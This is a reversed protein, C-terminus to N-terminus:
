PVKTFPVAIANGPALRTGWGFSGYSADYIFREGFATVEGYMVHGETFVAYVGQGAQGWNVSEGRTLGTHREILGVAERWGSVNDSNVLTRLNAIGDDRGSLNYALHEATCAICDRGGGIHVAGRSVVTGLSSLGTYAELPSWIVGSQFAGWAIDNPSAGPDAFFGSIAGDFAGGFGGYIAGMFAGPLVGAPGVTVLGYIAGTAAGGLAGGLAGGSAGTWANDWSSADLGLPDIKSLPNGAAYAYWNMGGGFGIPDANLFRGIRPNYYRARMYHLGNPDTMVGLTGVFLFPTDNTGTRQYIAGYPTYGVRDTIVGSANSLAVTNGVQDYHYYALTGTSVAEDYLLMGSAYVSFVKDGSPRERVLVRPLSGGHPDIVYRTTQGGSILSVRNGEPDYTYSVGVAGTLQNRANYTFTTLVGGPSPGSTMNGDADHIVAQGTWTLLRNDDDYTMAAMTENAAVTPMPLEFRSTVRGGLDYELKFFSHLEGNPKREEVKELQGAVDHFLNRSSGNPRDLRSLRGDARYTMTTTRGSWDTVTKLRNHNDYDYTVTRAPSGPYTVSKLSGNAYYRYSVVNGSADTYSKVRGYPDYTRVLTASGETVTEPQGITNYTYAITGVADTVTQVRDAVDYALTSTQGSPEQTGSLLNRDNYSRTATKGTPTILDKPLGNAHYTFQFKKGRRNTLSLREGWADSVSTITNDRGDTSVTPSGRGDYLQGTSSTITADLKRATGAPQGDPNFTSDLYRGLADTVREVRAADDLTYDTRQGALPGDVFDIWDRNDYTNTEVTIIDGAVLGPNTLNGNFLGTQVSTIKGSASVTTRKARGIPDVQLMPYGSDDYFVRSVATTYDPSDGPGTHTLLQGRANYTYVSAFGRANTRSTLNGRFDYVFSTQEVGGGRKPTDVREALGKADYYFTSVRDGAASKITVTSRKGAAPDSATKYVFETRVSRPDVTANPRATNNGVAYEFTTTRDVTDGDPVAPNPYAPDIQETKWLRDLSDYYNKTKAGLPDVVETLNFRADFKFTTTNGRPSTTSTAQDQGDYAIRSRNGEGDIKGVPRNRSDYLYVTRQGLPTAETNRFGSWHLTFTRATLGQNRQEIVRGDSDYTNHVITRTQPDKTETIRRDVSTYGWTKGEVDTCGTLNGQGDTALYTVTRAPISNDTVSSLRSGTFAFSLTRGYADTATSLRGGSYALTLQKGDIDTVKTGRGGEAAAFRYTTGLRESLLYDGTVAEKSLSLTSKAPPQYAGDPQKIFQLSNEGLTFSVANNEMQDVAWGSILTSVAWDKATSANAFIDACAYAAVITTAADFVTTEGLMAEPASRVVARLDYNHTWGWGLGVPDSDRRHSNYNRRLSLGRPEGEGLALDTAHLTFRGSGMDVPDVGYNTFSNYSPGPGNLGFVSLDSLDYNPASTATSYSSVYENTSSYGGALGGSIVVGISNDSTIVYGTGSWQNLPNSSNEPLFFSAGNNIANQMGDLFATTYGGTSLRPRVSAFTSSNALFLENAASNSSRNALQLVKITSIAGPSAQQQELVGHEFASAFFAATKFVLRMPDLRGDRAFYLSHNFGLDVYYSAPSGDPKQEQAARGFGHSQLANVGWIDGAVSRQLQSHHLWTLGLVNLTETVVQRRLNVDSISDLLVNGATDYLLGSLARAQRLYGDLIRQRFRVHQGNPSFSYVLAYATKDGKRYELTEVEPRTGAYGNPNSATANPYVLSTRLQVTAGPVTTTTLVEDDLHVTATNGSFTLALRKGALDSFFRTVITGGSTPNFQLLLKARVADDITATTTTSGSVPFLAATPLSTLSPTEDAVITRRGLLEDVSLHPTASTKVSGIFQNIRAILHTGMASENIGSVSYSDPTTGGAATLLASRSYGMATPLDFPTSANTPKYSPDLIYTSGAVTVSVWVRPIALNRSTTAGFTSSPWGRNGTFLHAALMQKKETDTWSVSVYPDSSYGWSSYAQAWTMGQFANTDLGLWSVATAYPILQTGRVYSPTYGAAKLLAVLLASQDYDNGSRELLTLLAGKKSGYYHEYAINNRVHQFILLPENFLGRALAVIEPSTDDAAAAMAPMSATGTELRAAATKPVKSSEGKKATFDRPALEALSPRVERNEWLPQASIGGVVALLLASIFLFRPM